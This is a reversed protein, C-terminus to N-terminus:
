GGFGGESRPRPIGCLIPTPPQPASVVPATAAIEHRGLGIQCAGDDLQRLACVTLAIERLREGGDEDVGVAPVVEVAVIAGTLPNPRGYVRALAVSDLAAIRGALSEAGNENGRFGDSARVDKGGGDRPAAGAGDGRPPRM